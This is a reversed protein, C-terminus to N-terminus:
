DLKSLIEAVIEENYGNDLYENWGAEGLYDVIASEHELPIVPDHRKEEPFFLPMPVYFINLRRLLAKKQEGSADPFWLRPDVNSTLWFRKACLPVAGGKIEVSVPYRDFWRLLHTIGIGGDFEDVVVDEQGCYGDWWKNAGIKIFADPGAKNFAKRSKGTCTPGWWVTATREMAIPKMHDKAIQKLTGYHKIYIEPDVDEIQGSRAKDRIREWSVPDAPNFVAEGFDFGSGAIRTEEKACYANAASSRSLECHATGGFLDKCTQRRVKKSTCVVVQWHRYDTKEGEEAQGKIWTINKKACWAGIDEPVSWEAYPITLIWYRGQPNRANNSLQKTSTSTPM